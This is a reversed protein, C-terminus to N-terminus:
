ADGEDAEPTPTGRQVIRSEKADVVSADHHAPLLRSTRARRSAPGRSHKEVFANLDSFAIRIASGVRTHRLAGSACRAYVAATCVGLLEAVRRVTLLPESIDRNTNETYLLSVALLKWKSADPQVPSSPPEAEFATNISPQM